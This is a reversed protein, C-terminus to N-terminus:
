GSPRPGQKLWNVIASRDGVVGDAVMGRPAVETGPLVISEGISAHEGITCSEGIVAPGRLHVSDAVESGAGILVPGGDNTTEGLTCEGAVLLGPAIEEADLAFGTLGALSDFNSEKYAAITGVDNWYSDFEHGYFPVDEDLLRPFVDNAWDVFDEGPFYDFIAPEFVYIGSNGLNSLAEEPAPKEQFGTVRDEDDLIVVGYERTDVVRKLALTGIGGKRKHAAVLEGLDAAIVGDGSLILFTEDGFFDRVNRVGGATGLLEPEESYSLDVAWAAGDGFYAKMLEPFYHINAIADSFGHAQVLTLIHAMVPRNVIPVLPKPLDYTIPRLRTGLGAAM